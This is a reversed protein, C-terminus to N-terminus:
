RTHERPNFQIWDLNMLGGKGPNVFVAFVDARGSGESLSTTLETWKEWGGTPAVDVEALLPGSATASHLQIKGGQGASAVRFTVSGSDALNVHDFKVYHGHDIAGVFNGLVKLGHKEDAAEAQLRRARLRVSTRGSLSGAPARGGDTYTAELIGFKIREDKPAKLQGNLGRTLNAGTKGPELGYVWRVMMRVQDPNLSEHPLMPIESWVKSSGKIVRQVSTELAGEQGRYKAAVDLLAPGVIKQEVSHCNFCDSQKMLALGPEVDEVRGDGRSWNANVYTRPEFIEEYDSSSGDERDSVAIAYKVPQGPTFFDGDHPEVFRVEPASNGVVLPLSASSIAGHQDSLRLEVV